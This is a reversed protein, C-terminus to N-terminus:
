PKDRYALELATIPTGGLVSVVATAADAVELAVEELQAPKHCLVIADAQEAVARNSDLAEGGVAGALAEARSRAVSSTVLVLCLLACRAGRRMWSWLDPM